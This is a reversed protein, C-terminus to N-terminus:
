PGYHSRRHQHYGRGVSLRFQYNSNSSIWIALHTSALMFSEGNSYDTGDVENTNGEVEIDSKATEM